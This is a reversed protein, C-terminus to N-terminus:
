RAHPFHHPGNAAEAVIRPRSRGRCQAPTIVNKLRRLSSSTPMKMTLLEDNTIRSAGPMGVVTGSVSRIAFPKQYSRHGPFQHRRGRTHRQPGV